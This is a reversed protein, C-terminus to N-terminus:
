SERVLVEVEMGKDDMTWLAAMKSEQNIELRHTESVGGVVTPRWVIYKRLPCEDRQCLNVWCCIVM